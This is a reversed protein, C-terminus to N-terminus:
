SNWTILRIEFLIPSLPACNKAEKICFEVTITKITQYAKENCKIRIVSSGRTPDEISHYQLHLLKGDQQHM